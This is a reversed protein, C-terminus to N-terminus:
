LPRMMPWVVAILWMAAGVQLPDTRRFRRSQRSGDPLRVMVTIGSADEASPEPPLRAAKRALSTKLEREEREVRQTEAAVAERASREAEEAEM